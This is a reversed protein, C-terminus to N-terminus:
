LSRHRCLCKSAQHLSDKNYFVVKRLMLDFLNRQTKFAHEIQAAPEESYISSGACFMVNRYNLSITKEDSYFYSLSFNLDIKGMYENEKSLFSEVDRRGSTVYSAHHFCALSHPTIMLSNCRCCFVFCLKDHNPVTDIINKVLRCLLVAQAKIESFSPQVLARRSDYADLAFNERLKELGLQDFPSLISPQFSPQLTSPRPTKNEAMEEVHPPAKPTNEM